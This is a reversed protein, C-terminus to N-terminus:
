IDGLMTQYTCLYEIKPFFHSVIPFIFKQKQGDEEIPESTNKKKPPQPRNIPPLPPQPSRRSNPREPTHDSAGFRQFPDTRKKSVGPSRPRESRSGCASRSRSRTSRETAGTTNQTTWIASRSRDFTFSAKKTPYNSITCITLVEAPQPLPEGPLNWDVIEVLKQNPKSFHSPTHNFEFHGDYTTFATKHKDDEDIVIQWYGFFLDITSLKKAGHLYDITEDIRPLPYRNKKTASNLKRYDFCFGKEGSKKDDLVVPFSYPSESPRIINHLLM